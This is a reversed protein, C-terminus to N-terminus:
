VLSKRNKQVEFFLFDSTQGPNEGGPGLTATTLNGAPENRGDNKGAKPCHGRNSSPGSESTPIFLVLTTQLAKTALRRRDPAPGDGTGVELGELDEASLGLVIPGM